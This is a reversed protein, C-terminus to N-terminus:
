SKPKSCNYWSVITSHNPSGRVIFNLKMTEKDLWFNESKIEYKNNIEVDNRFTLGGDMVFYLFDENEIKISLTKPDKFDDSISGKSIAATYELECSFTEAVTASSLPLVFISFIFLRKM